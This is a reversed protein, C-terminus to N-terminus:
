SIRAIVRPSAMFLGRVTIQQGGVALREERERAREVDERVHRDGPLLARLAAATAEFGLAIAPISAVADLLGEDVVFRPMEQVLLLTPGAPRKAAHTPAVVATLGVVPVEPELAAGLGAADYGEEVLLTPGAARCRDLLPGGRLLVLVPAWGRARLRWALELLLLPVGAPQADHGMLVIPHALGDVLTRMAARSEEADRAIAVPQFGRARGVRLYHRFPQVAEWELYTRAYFAADFGPGPSRGEADGSAVFHDWLRAGPIESGLVDPHRALYWEADFLARGDAVDGDDARHAM